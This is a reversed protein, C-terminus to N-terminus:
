IPKICGVCSPEKVIIPVDGHIPCMNPYKLSERIEDM